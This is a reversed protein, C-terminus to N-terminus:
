GLDRKDVVREVRIDIQDSGCVRGARTQWQRLHQRRPVHVLEGLLGRLARALRARVDIDVAQAYGPRLVCAVCAYLSVPAAGLDQALVDEELEEVAVDLALGRAVPQDVRVRRDLGGIELAHTEM